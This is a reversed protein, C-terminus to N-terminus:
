TASIDITAGSTRAVITDDGGEDGVDKLSGLTM